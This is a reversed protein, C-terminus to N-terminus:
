WIGLMMKVDESAMTRPDWPPSFTIQVDVDKVGPLDKLVAYTQGQLVGGLPCGPSTLTITVLIKQDEPIYEAGYVLGLDVISLRLEPDEVVKLREMIEDYTPTAQETTM